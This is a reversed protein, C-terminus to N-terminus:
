ELCTNHARILAPALKALFANLSAYGERSINTNEGFDPLIPVITERVDPYGPFVWPILPLHLIENRYCEMALYCQGRYHESVIFEHNLETEFTLKPFGAAVVITVESDFQEKIKRIIRIQRSISGISISVNDPAYIPIELLFIKEPFRKILRELTNSASNRNLGDVFLGFKPSIPISNYSGQPPSLHTPFGVVQECNDIILTKHGIVVIPQDVIESFENPQACPGYATIRPRSRDSVQPNAPGPKVANAIEFSILSHKTLKHNMTLLAFIGSLDYSIELFLNCEEFDREYLLEDRAHDLTPPDWPRLFHRLKNAISSLDTRLDKDICFETPQCLAKELHTEVSQDALHINFHRMAQYMCATQINQCLNCNFLTKNAFCHLIAETINALVLGDRSFFFLDDLSINVIGTNRTIPLTRHNDYFHFPGVRVSCLKCLIKGKYPLALVLARSAPTLLANGNTRADKDFLNCTTAIQIALDRVKAPKVVKNHNQVIMLVESPSIIQDIGFHDKVYSELPPSSAKLHLLHIIDCLTVFHSKLDLYEKLIKCPRLCLNAPHQGIVNRFYFFIRKM